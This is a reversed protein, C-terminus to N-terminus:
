SLIAICCSNWMGQERRVCQKCKARCEVYDYMYVQKYGWTLEHRLWIAMFHAGFTASFDHRSTRILLKLSELWFFVQKVDNPGFSASCRPCKRHQSKLIDQVCPNCFLHFCKTIVVQLALLFPFKLRFSAYLHFLFSLSIQLALVLVFFEFNLCWCGICYWTPDLMAIKTGLLHSKVM